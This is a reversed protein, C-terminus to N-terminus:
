LEVSEFKKGLSDTENGNIMQIQKYVFGDITQYANM